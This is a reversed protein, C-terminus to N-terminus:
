TLPWRPELPEQSHLRLETVGGGGGEDGGEEREMQGTDRWEAEDMEHMELPGATDGHGAARGLYPRKSNRTWRIISFMSDTRFVSVCARAQSSGHERLLRIDPPALGRLCGLAEIVDERCACGTTRKLKLPNHSERLNLKRARM